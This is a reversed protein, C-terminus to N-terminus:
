GIFPKGASMILPWLVSDLEKEPEPAVGPTELLSQQKIVKKIQKYYSTKKFQKYQKTKVMPALFKNWWAIECTDALLTSEESTEELNTYAITALLRSQQISKFISHDTILLQSFSIEQAATLTEERSHLWNAIPSQPHESLHYILPLTINRNKLDSLADQPTKSLTSLQYSSPTFDANDNILQRMLGYATAFKLLQIKEKEPLGLAECLFKTVLIFLAACTLYIRKFYLETFDWHERPLDKQLQEMFSELGEFSILQDLDPSLIEQKGTTSASFAQFTNYEKELMQGMDVLKFAKRVTKTLTSELKGSFNQEIYEYLNDKLLNAILMNHAIKEPSIIGNKKDLIQNHLYQVTIIVEFIFPTKVLFLEPNKNGPNNMKKNWGLRQKIILFMKQTFYARLPSGNLRKRIPLFIEKDLAANVGFQEFCILEKRLAKALTRM